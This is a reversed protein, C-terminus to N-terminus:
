DSASYLGFLFVLALSSRLLSSLLVFFATCHIGERLTGGYQGGWKIRGLIFKADHQHSPRKLKQGGREAWM